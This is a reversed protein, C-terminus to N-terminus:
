KYYRTTNKFAAVAVAWSCRRDADLGRQISKFRRPQWNNTHALNYLRDARTLVLISWSPGHSHCVTLSLILSYFTAQPDLVKSLSVLRPNAHYELLRHIKHPPNWLRPSGWIMMGHPRSNEMFMWFGDMLHYGEIEPFGDVSPANGCTGPLIPMQDEELISVDKAVLICVPEGVNQIPTTFLSTWWFFFITLPEFHDVWWIPHSSDGFYFSFNRLMSIM